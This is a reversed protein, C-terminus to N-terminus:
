TSISAHMKGRDNGKILSAQEVKLYYQKKTNRKVMFWANAEVYVTTKHIPNSNMDILSIDVQYQKPGFLNMGRKMRRYGTIKMLAQSRVLRIAEKKSGASCPVDLDISLSERKTWKIQVLVRYDRNRKIVRM